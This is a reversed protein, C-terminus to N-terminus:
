QSIAEPEKVEKKSNESDDSFGVMFATSILDFAEFHGGIGQIIKGADEDSFTLSDNAGHNLGCRMMTRIDRLSIDFEKDPQDKDKGFKNLIKQISMNFADEIDCFANFTFKLIYAKGNSEFRTEGKLKSM